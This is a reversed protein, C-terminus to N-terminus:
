LVPCSSSPSPLVKGISSSARRCSSRRSPADTAKNSSSNLSLLSSTCDRPTCNLRPKFQMPPSDAAATAFSREGLACKTVYPPMDLCGTATGVPSKMKLSSLHWPKQIVLHIFSMAFGASLIAMSLSSAPRARFPAM